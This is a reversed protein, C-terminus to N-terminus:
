LDGNARVILSELLDDIGVAGKVLEFRLENNEDEVNPGKQPFKKKIWVGDGVFFTPIPDFVLFFFNELHEFAYFLM